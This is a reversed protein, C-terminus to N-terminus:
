IRQVTFSSLWELSFNSTAKAHNPNKASVRSTIEAAVDLAFQKWAPCMQGAIARALRWLVPVEESIQWATEQRMGIMKETEHPNGDKNKKNTSKTFLM